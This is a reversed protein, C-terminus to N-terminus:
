PCLYSHNKLISYYAAYMELKLAGYKAQTPTLKKSGFVISRLKRNDPLRQWQHLIESIAGGSADSSLVFEGESDPQALATAEIMAVKIGNFALQQEEM